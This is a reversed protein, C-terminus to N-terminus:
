TLSARRATQEAKALCDSSRRSLAVCIRHFALLDGHLGQKAEVTAVKEMWLNVLGALERPADILHPLSPFGERSTPPLRALITIPTAYAPPVTIPTPDPGLVCISDVFDKFEQRRSSLFHNMPEMWSEKVGFKTMNALGQLSKAVLTLTRQTRPSPQDVHVDTVTVLHLAPLKKVNGRLLGFLRPNLVAPCFFRLFIFGSVSSYSVTQQFKGWRDEACSRVHRLILRIEWPCRLASDLISSWIGRFLNVLNRWNKDLNSGASLRSPDVECDLNSEEISKLKTRLTEELYEKGIRSMYLELAKTLLSNGRFLLNAEVTASRGLDRVILERAGPGDSDKTANRSSGGIRKNAVARPVGDVEEEVLEMLWEGARGSVQFISLLMQSLRPLSLPLARALTVTLGNSFCHLLDSLQRYEESMLVVTEEARIRLMMDGSSGKGDDVIPLWAEREESPGFGELDIEVKGVSTELIDESLSLSSCIASTYGDGSISTPGNVHM